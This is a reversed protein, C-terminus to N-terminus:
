RGGRDVSDFRILVEYDDGPTFAKISALCRQLREVRRRSPILISVLPKRTTAFAPYLKKPKKLAAKRLEKRGKQRITRM